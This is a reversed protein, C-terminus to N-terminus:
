FKRLYEWEKRKAERPFLELYPPHSAKEIIEYLRPPKRSHGKKPAEFHTPIDDVKTTLKGKVFFLCHETSNRFYTGLGFSPKIWTLVTKYSFGWKEGLKLAEYLFNNTTWLYLHAEDDTHKLFPLAKLEELSMVSYETWGREAVSLQGYDWPPDILITKFKGELKKQPAEKKIREGDRKRQLRRWPGSVKGKRDMEEILNEDGAEAIEMVKKLTGHSLNLQAAVIKRTEGGALKASPIGVLMRKEADKKVQPWLQEAISAKESLLLDKHQINEDVAKRFKDARSITKIRYFPANKWGLITLAEFRRRGCILENNQNVVLPQLLGERKISEALPKIDGHERRPKTNKIESLKM